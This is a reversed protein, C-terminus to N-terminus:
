LELLRDSLANDHPGTSPFHQALAAGCIEVAKVYGQAPDTSKMGEQVAAVAQNWVKKGVKKYLVQNALIEVVRDDLSAFIVVGSRNEALHLGAAAFQALAARHVRYKKLAKPTLARRVPRLTGILTFLVFLGLQLLAYGSMISSVDAAGLAHTQTWGGQLMSLVDLPHLGLAMAAPPIGLAAAAGLAIPIEPYNSVEHAFVCLIEGDTTSEARAVAAMIERQDAETIM